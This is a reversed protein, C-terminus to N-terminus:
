SRASPDGRVLVSRWRFADVVAPHPQSTIQVAKKILLEPKPNISIRVDGNIIHAALPLLRAEVGFEMATAIADGITAVDADAILVLDIREAALYTPLEEPGDFVTFGALRAGRLKKDPSLLCVVHIESHFSIQRLASALGETTGM